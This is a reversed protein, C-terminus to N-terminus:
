KISKKFSKQHRAPFNCQVSLPTTTGSNIKDNDDNAAATDDKNREPLIFQPLAQSGRGSRKKPKKRRAYNKANKKKADLMEWPVGAQVDNTVVDGDDDDDDIHADDGDQNDDRNALPANSRHQKRESEFHKRATVIEDKHAWMYKDVKNEAVWNLFNLFPRNVYLEIDDDNRRVTLKTIPTNKRCYPAIKQSANLNAYSEALDNGEHTPRRLLIHHRCFYEYMRRSLFNERKNSPFIELLRDLRRQETQEGFTLEAPLSM